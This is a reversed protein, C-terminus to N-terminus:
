WQKRRGGFCSGKLAVVKVIRHNGSKHMLSALNESEAESDWQMDSADIEAAGEM